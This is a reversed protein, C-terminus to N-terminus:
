CGPHLNRTNTVLVAHTNSHSPAGFTRMLMGRATRDQDHRSTPADRARFCTRPAPLGYRDINGSFSQAKFKFTAAVTGDTIFGTKAVPGGGEEM